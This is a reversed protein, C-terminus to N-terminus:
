ADVKEANLLDEIHPRGKFDVPIQAGEAARHETYLELAGFVPRGGKGIRLGRDKMHGEAKRFCSRIYSESLGMRVAIEGWSCEDELRLKVVIPGYLNREEWDPNDGFKKEVQARKTASVTVLTKPSVAELYARRLILWYRTVKIPNDKGVMFDDVLKNEVIGEASCFEDYNEVLHAVIADDTNKTAFISTTM